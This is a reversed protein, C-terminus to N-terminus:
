GNSYKDNNGRLTNLAWEVGYGTLLLCFAFFVFASVYNQYELLNVHYSFDDSVYYINTIAFYTKDSIYNTIMDNIRTSYPFSSAEGVMVRKNGALVLASLRSPLVCM